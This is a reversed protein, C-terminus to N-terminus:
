DLVQESRKRHRRLFKTGCWPCYKLSQNTLLSAFFYERNKEDYHIPLRTDKIFEAFYQCCHEKNIM